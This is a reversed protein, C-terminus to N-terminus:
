MDDHGARPVTSARRPAIKQGAYPNAEYSDYEHASSSFAVSSANGTNALPVPSLRSPNGADIDTDSSPGRHLREEDDKHSLEHYRYYLFYSGGCLVIACAIAILAIAYAPLGLPPSTPTAQYENSFVPDGVEVDALSTVNVTQAGWDAFLSDVDGDMVAEELTNELGAVTATGINCDVTYHILISNHGSNAESQLRRRGVLGLALDWVGAALSRRRTPGPYITLDKISAKDINMAEALAGSMALTYGTADSEADDFPCGM